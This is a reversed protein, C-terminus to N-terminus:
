ALWPRIAGTAHLLSMLHNMLMAADQAGVAPLRQSGGTSARESIRDPRVVVRAAQGHFPSAAGVLLLLGGVTRRALLGLLVAVVIPFAV